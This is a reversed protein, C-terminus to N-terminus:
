SASSMYQELAEAFSDNVDFPCVYDVESNVISRDIDASVADAKKSLEQMYKKIANRDFNITKVTRVDCRYSVQNGEANFKYGVGTNQSVTESSRLDAMHSFLKAVRQRTVNLSTESDIDTQLSRKAERIAAYLKEKESLTFVIFGAIDTIRDAYESHQPETVTEDETDGTAKKKLYVSVVTLLNSDHILIDEASDLLSQLKNQYRFAEKLNM